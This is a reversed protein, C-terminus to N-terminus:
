ARGRWSMGESQKYYAVEDFVDRPMCFICHFEDNTLDDTVESWTPCTVPTTPSREQKARKNQLLSAFVISKATQSELIGLLSVTSALAV